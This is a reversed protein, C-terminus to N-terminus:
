EAFNHLEELHIGIRTETPFTTRKTHMLDAKVIDNGARVIFLIGRLSYVAGVTLEATVSSLSQQLNESHM